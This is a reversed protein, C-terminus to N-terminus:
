DEKKEEHPEVWLAQLENYLEGARHATELIQHVDLLPVEYPGPGKMQKVNIIGAAPKGARDQGFSFPNHAITNRIESRKAVENWIEVAKKKKEPAWSSRQVLRKILDIRQSLKMDIAVDRMIMDTSLAEICRFSAYEIGGFNLFVGGIANSWLREEEATLLRAKNPRPIHSM